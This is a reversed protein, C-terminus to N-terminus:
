NGIRNFASEQAGFLNKLLGELAEVADLVISGSDIPAEM